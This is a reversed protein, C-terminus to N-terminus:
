KFFDDIKKNLAISIKYLNYMSVGQSRKSELAAITSRSVGIKKALDHQYMNTEMNQKESDQNFCTCTSGM